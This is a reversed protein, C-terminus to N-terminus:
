FTTDNDSFIAQTYSFQGNHHSRSETSQPSTQARPYMQLHHSPMMFQPNMNNLPQCMMRQLLAFGDSISGTLKELNSTLREMSSSYAKDMTDMRELMQKKIQLEEQSISLLQSEPPLKRKLRESKHGKLQASLLERREKIVQRSVPTQQSDDDLISENSQDTEVIDERSSKQSDENDVDIDFCKQNSSEEHNESSELGAAMAATAPSGGWIESCHKYFIMVVRGHGSRRGNDVAQRYKSRIAKLKSTLVSKTLENKKHPFDKGIAAADEPSPYHASYAELIEGYKDVCSEWDTSKAIQKTKYEKTVTLLLEVEDDTWKYTDAYKKKVKEFSKSMKKSHYVVLKSQNCTATAIARFFHSWIAIVRMSM